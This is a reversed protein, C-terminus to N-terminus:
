EKLLKQYAAVEKRTTMSEVPPKPNVRKCAELNLNKLKTCNALGDLTELATCNWLDV